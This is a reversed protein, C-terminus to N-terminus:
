TPPPGSAGHHHRLQPYISDGARYYRRQEVVDLLGRNGEKRLLNMVALLSDPGRYSPITHSETALFETWDM